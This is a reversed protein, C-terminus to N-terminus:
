ENRGKDILEQRWSRWSDLLEGLNYGLYKYFDEISREYFIDDDLINKKIMIDIIRNTTYDRLPYYENPFDEFLRPRKIKNSYLHYIPVESPIYVNWGATFARVGNLLEEGWFLVWEPQSITKFYEIPAFIFHGTIYWDQAYKKELLNELIVAKPLLDYSHLLSQKTTDTHMEFSIPYTKQKKEEAGNELIDFVPLAGSLIPKEYNISQITNILQTDWGKDFRSHADIQLVYKHGDDLWKLCRNRCATVSFVTGAQEIEYKVKNNYTKKLSLDKIENELAHIFCGVTINEPNDAELFLSDITSQLYPDRYSAISVYIKNIVMQRNSV